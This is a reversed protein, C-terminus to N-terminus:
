RDERETRWGAEEPVAASPDQNLHDNLEELRVGEKEAVADMLLAFYADEYQEELKERRTM